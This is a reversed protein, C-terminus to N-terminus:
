KLWIVEVYQDLISQMAILCLLGYRGFNCVGDRMGMLVAVTVINHSISGISSRNSSFRVSISACVRVSVSM